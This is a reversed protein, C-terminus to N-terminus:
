IFVAVGAYRMNPSEAVSFSTDGSAAVISNTDPQVQVINSSVTEFFQVIPNVGRGHTAGTVTITYLGDAATGWDTTADHSSVYRTAAVSGTNVLSQIYWVGAAATGDILTFKYASQSSGATIVQLSAGAGGDKVTLNGGTEANIVVEWGKPLTTANPLTVDQNGTATVDQWYAFGSLIALTASIAQASLMQNARTVQIKGKYDM